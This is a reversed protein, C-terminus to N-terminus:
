WNEDVCLAVSLANTGVSTSGHKAECHAILPDAKAHDEISYRIVKQLMASDAKLSALREETSTLREEMIKSLLSSDNESLGSDFQEFKVIITADSEGALQSAEIEDLFKSFKARKDAESEFCGSLSWAFACVVLYNFTRYQIMACGMKLRSSVRISSTM